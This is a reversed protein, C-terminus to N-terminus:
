HKVTLSLDFGTLQSSFVVDTNAAGASPKRSIKLVPMRPEYLSDPLFGESGQM